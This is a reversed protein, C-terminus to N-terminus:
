WVREGNVYERLEANESELQEIRAALADPHAAMLVRLAEPMAAIAKAVEFGRGGHCTLMLRNGAYVADGYATWPEVPLVRLPEILKAISM